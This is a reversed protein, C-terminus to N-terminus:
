VVVTNTIRTRGIRISNLKGDTTYFTCTYTGKYDEDCHQEHCFYAFDPRQAILQATQTQFASRGKSPRVVYPTRASSIFSHVLSM